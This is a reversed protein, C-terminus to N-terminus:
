SLQMTRDLVFNEPLDPCLFIPVAIVTGIM